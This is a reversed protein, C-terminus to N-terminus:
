LFNQRCGVAALGLKPSPCVGHVRMPFQRQASAGASLGKGRVKQQTSSATPKSTVCTVASPNGTTSSPVARVSTTGVGTLPSLHWQWDGSM